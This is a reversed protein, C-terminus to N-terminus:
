APRISGPAVPQRPENAYSVIERWYSRHSITSSIISTMLIAAAVFSSLSWLDALRAHAPAAPENAIISGCLLCGSYILALNSAIALWLRGKSSRGLGILVILILAIWLPQFLAYQSLWQIGRLGAFSYEFPRFLELNVYWLLSSAPWSALAHAAAEAAAIAAILTVPGILQLTYEGRM